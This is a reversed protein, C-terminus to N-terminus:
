PIKNEVVNFASTTAIKLLVLLYKIKLRLPRIIITQKKLLDVLMLYKRSLMMLQRQLVTVLKHNNTALKDCVTRKLFNNNVINSIKSLDIPFTIM